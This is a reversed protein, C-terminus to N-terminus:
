RRRHQMAAALMSRNTMGTAAFIRSVYKKVTMETINLREAIAANTLGAGVLEAVERQRPSLAARVDSVANDADSDADSIALHRCGARLHRALLRMAVADDTSWTRLEDFMGVIAEGDAFRLHLASGPGIGGRQLLAEVYSRHPAPLEGLDDLAAFGHQSLLRRARPLTFVDKDFWQQQYERLTADSIGILFPSPDAFMDAYSQGFFFTVNRVGFERAM